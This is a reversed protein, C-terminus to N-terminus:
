VLNVYLGYTLVFLMAFSACLFLIGKNYPYTLNLDCEGLHVVKRRGYFRM